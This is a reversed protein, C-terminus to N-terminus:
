GGLVTEYAARLLELEVPPLSRAQTLDIFGADIREALEFPPDITKIALLIIRIRQGPVEVQQQFGSEVALDEPELGIEQAAASLVGHQHLPMIEPVEDVVRALKPLADFACVSNNAFRLFRTRASTSQKHYFIVRHEM